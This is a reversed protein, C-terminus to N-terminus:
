VLALNVDGNNLDNDMPCICATVDSKAIRLVM